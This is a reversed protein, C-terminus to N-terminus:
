LTRLPFLKSIVIKVIMYIDVSYLFMLFLAGTIKWIFKPTEEALLENYINNGTMIHGNQVKLGDYVNILINNNINLIKKFFADRNEMRERLEVFNNDAYAIVIFKESGEGSSDIRIGISSIERINIKKKIGSFVGKNVYLTEESIKYYETLGQMILFGFPMPILLLLPYFPTQQIIILTVWITIPIFFNLVMMKPFFVTNKNRRMNLLALVILTGLVVSIMITTINEEFCKKM